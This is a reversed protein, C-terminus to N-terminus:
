LLQSLLDGNDECLRRFDDGIRPDAAATRWFTLAARAAAQWASTDAPLPLKPAYQRRPLEVGRVPAYLMPLMDYIPALAFAPTGDRLVPQFSLNGDHMDTNAILQGYLWVRQITALDHTTLWGTPLLKACAELWPHGASGVMAANLSCWTAVPSRGLAGHRDFRNIELFTRGGHLHIRSTAAAVNLQSALM